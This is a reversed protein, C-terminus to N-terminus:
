GPGPAEASHADQGAGLGRVRSRPSNARTMVIGTAAGIRRSSCLAQMLQEAQRTSVLGQAQLEAIQEQGDTVQSELADLRACNRAVTALLQDIVDADHRRGSTSDPSSRLISPALGSPPM